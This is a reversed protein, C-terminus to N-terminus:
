RGLTVERGSAWTTVHVVRGDTELVIAGDEDTRFMVANASRYRAVVVPAPHGFRNNRGASFIVAAPHIAAIFPETSSTASGHHPAKVVTIPATSLTPNLSQEAERGIDGPLVISVSGLRLELVVSDENRVRQREWEPPPPHLVRIEVGGSLERDGSQVTRWAAGSLRAASALERLPVHPPVPVGEWIQRPSLRRLVAPAGGIHDPDGHTLVLTDISSVGLARVSPFVVREGIDFSAGPVGGTDVLVARKDPFQLLTSDGQGVDLFVVRMFGPPLSPVGARTTLPSGVVMLATAGALM